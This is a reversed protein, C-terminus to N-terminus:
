GMQSATDSLKKRFLVLLKNNVYPDYECKGNVRRGAVGDEPVRRTAVGEVETGGLLRREVM